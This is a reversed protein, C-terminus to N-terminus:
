LTSLDKLRAQRQQSSTMENEVVYTKIILPQQEMAPNTRTPNDPSTVNLGSAFSTGGGMQNMMSLMPAFMTVAGSTMVAEGNSLRAPISDSKSTGPGRVIGGDAYGRGMKNGGEGGGSSSEPGQPAVGSVYKQKKIANAQAIGYGLALAAAAIGLAPGVVPIVAMASYAAIAAQSASILAQAYQADRNRNFYQEKIKDQKVALERENIVTQKDFEEKSSITKANYEQQKNFAIQLEDLKNQQNIGRIALEQSLVNQAAGLIQNAIQLYSDLEQQDLDRRLKVYKAKIATIEKEKGEAAEIERKESVELIERQGEFFAKTGARIAEQRIQLFRLEDDLDKLRKDADSKTKGDDITKIAADYAMRLQLRVKNKEEESLKIFEKDRELADLDRNFKAEREAKERKVTDEIAAIRIDELKNLFDRQTVLDEEVRKKDVDIQKLSYKEDIQAIITKKKNESIELSNIKKKENEAQNKLEQDQRKREDELILVSNEQQLQLLTEDASKNDAEIKALHAKNDAELKQQAQLAIQRAKDAQGVQFDLRSQENANIQDIIDGNSKLSKARLEELLKNKDEEKLVTNKSVDDIQKLIKNDNDRLEKLREENGKKQIDFIEQESKGAIKARSISQKTAADIAKLNIALLRDQEKLTDNLAKNAADAEETSTVWEYIKTILAGIVVIAAGIVTGILVSNITRGLTTTWFTAQKEVVVLGEISTIMGKTSAAAKTQNETLLQIEGNADIYSVVTDTVAGKADKLTDIQANFGSNTLNQVAANVEDITVKSAALNVATKSYQSSLNSVAGATAGAQTAANTLSGSTNDLETKTTKTSDSLGLFNSSVDKVDDVIDTLSNKIDKFTFSSFVKLTDVAGQISSGFQGVPGPLTSLVGFFDKSKVTTKAIQDETDGIKKRLIDFQEPKIDGKQLEKKLIRLQQTLSLTDQNAIKLDQSDIDYEIFIKKGAM